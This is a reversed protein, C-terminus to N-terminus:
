DTAYIFQKFWDTEIAEYTIRKSIRVFGWRRLEKFAKRCYNRFLQCQLAMFVFIFIKREFGAKTTNKTQQIKLTDKIIRFFQEIQTRQFWRHRLTIAKIGLDTTYIVSVKKSNKLRFLLMIVEADLKKCWVKLRLLTPEREGTGPKHAEIEEAELEEFSAVYDAVQKSEGNFKFTADKKPVFIPHVLLSKDLKKCQEFLLRGEFGNDVSLYLDKFDVGDAKGWEVMEDHLGRLLECAVQKTDETKSTLRLSTPYFTGKLSMGCLTVRFGYVTTKYQGSFYKAFYDGEPVTKLWQKFISDDIVVTPEARSWSSDSQRGLATLEKRLVGLMLANVSRTISELSLSRCLKWWKKGQCGNATLIQNLTRLGYVQGLLLLLLTKKVKDRNGANLDQGTLGDLLAFCSEQDGHFYHKVAKELANNIRIRTGKNNVISYFPALHFM